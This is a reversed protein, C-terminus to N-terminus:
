LFGQLNYNVWNSIPNPPNPWLLPPIAFKLLGATGGMTTWTDVYWQPTTRFWPLHSWYGPGLRFLIYVSSHTSFTRTKSEQFLPVPSLDSPIKSNIGLLSAYTASECPNKISSTWKIVILKKKRKKQNMNTIAKKSKVDWNHFRIEVHEAGRQRGEVSEVTGTGPWIYRINLGWTLRPHLPLFSTKDKM